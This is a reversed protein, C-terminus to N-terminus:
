SSRSEAWQKWREAVEQLVKGPAVLSLRVFGEGYEGYISGPAICIGTNKMLDLCYSLSSEENLLKIWLYLGAKPTQVKLGPITKLATVMLDRRQQYQQNRQTIWGESTALSAIGAQIAPLFQGSESQAKLLRLATISEAQGVLVGMRWGAMNFSKSLSNFEVAFDLAGPIQLISGAEYGNFTVKCYAADHCVLFNFRKALAVAEELVSRPSVAGTPNNPYNLWLLRTRKLDRESISSFDPLFSNQELLPITVVEAGAFRASEIYTPYAPDPVLVVQGPDVLTQTLNFIGEKSGILPQIHDSPKLQVDFWRQYAEAWALRLGLPGIHSQYGHSGSLEAYETLRHVVEPPPPLDPSGIDLRFIDLGREQRQAIREGQGLYFSESLNNLRKSRGNM